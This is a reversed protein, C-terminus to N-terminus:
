IKELVWVDQGGPGRGGTFEGEIQHLKKFRGGVLKDLGVSDVGIAAEPCSPHSTWWGPTLPTTFNFLPQPNVYDRKVLFTVVALGGPKLVAYLRDMYPVAQAEQLHTFVSLATVMDQTGEGVPWDFVIGTSGPKYWANVDKSLYFSCNPIDAFTRQAAAISTPDIDVGVFRGGAKLFPLCPLVMDGMGCGFDFIQAREAKLFTSFLTGFMGQNFVWATYSYHHISSFFEPPVHDVTVRLEDWCVLRDLKLWLLSLPKYVSYFLSGTGDLGRVISGLQSLLQDIRMM